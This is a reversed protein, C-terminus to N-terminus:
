FRMTMAFKTNFGPMDTQNLFPRYNEDLINNFRVDFRLDPSYAYGVFLDVLTFASSKLDPDSVRHQKAAATIETGLELKEDLFRFGLTGTIQDPPISNLWDHTTRDKGRLIQGSVGAFMFGADYMGEFEFGKIRAKAVNVYQFSGFPFPTPLVQEFSILDDVNNQFVATKIRLADDGTFLGNYKFNLGVEFTKATEPKLDPNPLFPFTAPPPHIGSILTETVSPARYGEAYTGYFELGELYQYFPKVAVTVKPSIRDGENDVPEGTITDTGDLKYGDFRGAAILYLWPTFTMKDQIFAGYADRKGGPTFLDGTGVEDATKVHDNFFDGGYTLAHGIFGTEFLTTNYIDFGYTTLDFGRTFGATPGTENRQDLNTTSVYGSASLNWFDGNPDDFTYRVVGINNTLRSDRAVSESEDLWQDDTGIYSVKIEHGEAPRYGMKAFGSLIDFASGDVTEGKGNKYDGRDRYTINGVADFADYQMAGTGSLFWGDGNTEYGSRLIGGAFQGPDLIDRADKTEFAVVGGIAGSGYINAVPGRVVTVKKLLEPEIYVLNQGNHKSIQFNQRAGDITVAVRGFDQLGRINISGGPQDRDQAVTVSPMGRFIDDLTAAQRQELKRETVISVATPSDIPTEEIKGPVVTIEDLSLWEQPVAEGEAPVPGAVQGAEQAKATATVAALAVGAMMARRLWALRNGM